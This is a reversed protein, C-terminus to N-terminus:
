ITVSNSTALLRQWRPNVFWRHAFDASLARMWSQTHETCPPLGDGLFELREYNTSSASRHSLAEHLLAESEYSYGLATMLPRFQQM